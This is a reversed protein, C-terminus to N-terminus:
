SKTERENDEAGPPNGTPALDFIETTTTLPQYVAIATQNLFDWRSLLCLFRGSPSSGLSDVNFTAKIDLVHLQTKISFVLRGLKLDLACNQTNLGAGRKPNDYARISATSPTLLSDKLGLAHFTVIPLGNPSILPIAFALM